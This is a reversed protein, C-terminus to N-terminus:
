RAPVVSVDVLTQASDAGAFARAVIQMPTTASVTPATWSRTWNALGTARLRQNDVVVVVSDLPSGGLFPIATGSVTVDSGGTIQAGAAPAAIAVALQSITVTILATTSDVVVARTEEVERHTYARAALIRTTNSALRPVSWLYSWELSGTAPVYGDGVNVKVSDIPTASSRSWARGRMEVFTGGPVVEGDLPDQFEIAVDDQSFIAWDTKVASQTWHNRYQAYVVHFGPEAPLAVMATDDYALWPANGFGPDTSLRMLTAVASSLVRVSPDSIVRNAPLDLRFTVATLDDPTVLQSDVVTFAPSFESEFQAFVLQPQPTDRLLYDQIITAPPQWSAAALEARSPALRLQTVGAPGGGVALDVVLDPVTTVGPPMDLTPRFSVRISAEITDSSVTVPQGGIDVTQLACAYVPLLDGNAAAPGLDWLAVVASDGVFPVTQANAFDATQSLRAVEFGTALVRLHVYRTRTTAADGAVSVLLPVDVAAAAVQGEVTQEDVSNRAILKYYSTGTAIPHTDTFTGSATTPADITAIIDYIDGDGSRLVDYTTIDYGAPHTWTLHVTNGSVVAVLNFPDEPNRPDFPNDFRPEEPNKSCGFVALAALLVLWVWVLRRHMARAGTFAM